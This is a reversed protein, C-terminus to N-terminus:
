SQCIGTIGLGIRFNKHVIKNTEEHIFNLACVAKQTKYLLKACDILEEQSEINNLYIESLNCCEKDSLTIEGCPNFGECSDKKEDCLRGYKQSLKINVFGYPEGNGTYGTWIDSSIHSYDDAYITNNSMSRWNPINGIDWRKARIFLFDDPDGLAIQASRRVNGSVVIGGIINCIDLADISRIKKGERAKLVKCIKEIGDVLIAPGSAEGGFGKIKEGKGRVLMTSYTFSKGNLFYSKLVRRLLYVWGERSDPVIFDADSTSEHTICVCDHIKPLEHIDERRVSFGVGGGLMLNEFLFCFDNINKITTFWCNLLANGHYRKINQTGLQWLMRGAYNCKLNFIYDYLREAEAKTYNANIDQAGNICRAVTEYWDEYTGDEKLRSYTRKYVLWGLGNYGWRPHLQKYGDLFEATIIRNPMMAGNCGNERLM